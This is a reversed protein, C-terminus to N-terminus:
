GKKTIKFILDLVRERTAFEFDEPINAGIGFSHLPINLKRNLTYILGHQSTEDLKTCIIDDYHFIQYRKALELAQKEGMTLPCVYHVRSKELLHGVSDKLANIESLDKLTYGPTDVLIHDMHRLQKLIPEWDENRNIIAFPINLIRAYIKLQEIAGVKNTNTTIIAVNKRHRIIQHSAYKVLSATKGSGAAGMFIEIKKGQDDGTVDITDLFYKAVWGEILAAKKDKVSSMAKDGEKLIEKILDVNIGADNLKEYMHDLYAPVAGGHQSPNEIFTQPMQQFKQLVSQLRLVEQKLQAIESDNKAHNVRRKTEIFDNNLSQLASQTATQLRALNSKEQSETAVEEQAISEDQIEIYPRRKPLQRRKVEEQQDYFSKVARQIYKKQTRAKAEHLKKREEEKLKALAFQRERYKQESIAATLEVSTSGAIGYGKKNDKASLIIADPGLETKVMQLAEQMNKAEFKKVQM